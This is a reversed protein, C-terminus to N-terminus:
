KKGLLQHLKVHMQLPHAPWEAECLARIVAHGMTGFDTDGDADASDSSQNATVFVDLGEPLVCGRTEATGLYDGTPADVLQINYNTTTVCRNDAISAQSVPAGVDTGNVCMRASSCCQEGVPCIMVGDNQGSPVTQATCQANAAVSWGIQYVFSRAGAWKGTHGAPLSFSTRPRGYGPWGSTSSTYFSRMFRLYLDAESLMAGAGGWMLDSGTGYPVKGVQGHGDILGFTWTCAGALTPECVPTKEDNGPPNWSGGSYGRALMQEPDLQAFPAGFKDPMRAMFMGYRSLKAGWPNADGPWGGLNALVFNSLPSGVHSQHTLTSGGWIEGAEWDPEGSAHEMVLMMVVIGLNSYVRPAVGPMGNLPQGAQALIYEYTSQPQALVRRPAQGQVPPPFAPNVLHLPAGVDLANDFSPDHYGRLAFLNNVVTTTSMLDRPLGARHSLLHGITMAQWRSDAGNPAFIPNFWLAQSCTAGTFLFPCSCAVKDDGAPVCVGGNFCDNGTAGDCATPAKTDSIAIAAPPPVAGPQCTYSGGAFTCTGLIDRLGQPVLDLDGDLLRVADVAADVQNRWGVYSGGMQPLRGASELRAEILQRAMAATIAKTNSGIRVPTNPQVQRATPDTPGCDINPRGQTGAGSTVGYGRRFIPVGKWNIGVVAGGGCRDYMFGMVAKDVGALAPNVPGAPKPLGTPSVLVGLEKGLGPCCAPSAKISVAQPEDGGSTPAFYRARGDGLPILAGVPTLLEYVMTDHQGVGIPTVEIDTVDGWTLTEDAGSVTFGAIPLDQSCDAGMAGPACTCTTQGGDPTCSGRGSCLAVDCDTATLCAGGVRIAGKACRACSLGTYGPDCQCAVAGNTPDSVCTGNDCIDECPGAPVCHAGGTADVKLALGTACTACGSEPLLEPDDCICRASTADVFCTGLNSCTEGLCTETCAAGGFGAACTCVIEGTTDACTGNGCSAATCTEVPVCTQGDDRFGDDCRECRDGAFGGVCVCQTASGLELCSGRSGCLSESCTAGLACSGDAARDYYPLCEECRPGAHGSECECVAIGGLEACVGDRGCDIQGCTTDSECTFSRGPPAAGTQEGDSQDEDTGPLGSAGIAHFGAACTECAAGAWGTPCSCAYLTGSGACIGLAGCPATATPDCTSAADLGVCAGGLCVDLTAADKDDCAPAGAQDCPVDACRQALRALGPPVPLGKASLLDDLWAAVRAPQGCKVAHGAAVGGSKALAQGGIPGLGGLSAAAWVLVAIRLAKM